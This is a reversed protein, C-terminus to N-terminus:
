HVSPDVTINVTSGSQITTGSNVDIKKGAIFNAKGGSNINDKRITISNQAKIDNIQSSVTEGEWVIDSMLNGSVTNNQQTCGIFNFINKGFDVTNNTLTNGTSTNVEIGYVTSAGNIFNGTVTNGTCNNKLVIAPSYGTTFFNNNLTCRTVNVMAIAAATADANQFYVNEISVDNSQITIAPTSGMNVILACGNNDGVIKLPKTITVNETYVGRALHLVYGSPANTVAQQLTKYPYDTANGVFVESQVNALLPAMNPDMTGWESANTIGSGSRLVIANAGSLYCIKYNYNLNSPAFPMIITANQNKGFTQSCRVFEKGSVKLTLSVYYNTNLITQFSFILSQGRTKQTSPKPKEVVPKSWPITSCSNNAVGSVWTIQDIFSINEYTATSNPKIWNDVWCNCNTPCITGKSPAYDVNGESVVGFIKYKFAISNKVLIPSGSNGKYLDMDVQFLDSRKLHAGDTFIMPLGMPFGWTFLEYGNVGLTTLVDTGTGSYFCMRKQKVDANKSLTLVAFDYPSNGNGKILQASTNTVEYVDSTNVLVYPRNQSDFRVPFDGSSSKFYNFICVIQDNSLFDAVVHFATLISNNNILSGTASPALVYENRFATNDCVKKIQTTGDYKDLILKSLTGYLYLKTKGDTTSATNSKYTILCISTAIEQYYPIDASLLYPDAGLSFYQHRDDFDGYIVETGAIVASSHILFILLGFAFLFVRKGLAEKKPYLLRKM